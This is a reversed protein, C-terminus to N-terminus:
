CESILYLSNYEMYEVVNHVYCCRQPTAPNKILSKVVFKTNIRASLSYQFDTLMQAHFQAQFAIM